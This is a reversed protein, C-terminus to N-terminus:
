ERSRALEARLKTVAEHTDAVTVCLAAWFLGGVFWALAALGVGMPIRGTGTWASLLLGAAAIAGALGSLLGFLRLIDRM